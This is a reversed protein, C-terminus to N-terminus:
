SSPTSRCAWHGSRTTAGNGPTITVLWLPRGEYSTGYQEVTVLGPNAAAVGHLWSTLEDYRLYRDFGYEPTTTM